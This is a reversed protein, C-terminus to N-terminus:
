GSIKVNSYYRTKKRPHKQNDRIEEIIAFKADNDFNHQNSTFHLDAPITTPSPHVTDSRHKNLRENFATKTNGVITNQM